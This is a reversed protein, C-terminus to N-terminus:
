LVPLPLSRTTAVSEPERKIKTHKKLKTSLAITSAPAGALDSGSGTGYHTGSEDKVIVSCSYCM